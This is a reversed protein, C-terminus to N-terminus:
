EEIFPMLVELERASIEFNELEEVSIKIDTLEVELESLEVIEKQCDNMKDKQIRVGAGNDTLIFQGNEDKEGYKDIINNLQIQYFEKERAIERGLKSFKYATKISTKIDKLKNILIDMELLESMNLKM